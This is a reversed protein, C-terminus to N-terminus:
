RILVLPIAYNKSPQGAWLRYTGPAQGSLDLRVGDGLDEPVLPTIRGLADILQFASGPPLGKVLVEDTAPNPHVVIRSANRESVSETCAGSACFAVTAAVTGTNIDLIPPDV